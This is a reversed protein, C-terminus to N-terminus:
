AKSRSVVGLKTRGDIRIDLPTTLRIHRAFQNETEVPGNALWERDIFDGERQPDITLYGMHLSMVNHFFHTGYSPTIAEGDMDTEVMVRANAIQEWVVPIGLTRDASGWRGPGILVYPHPIGENLEGIAKAIEATRKRDFTDQRVVVIDRIEDFHGNGLAQRSMCLTNERREFLPKAGPGALSNVIPRIQLLAFEHRGGEEPSLDVAFELEIDNGMGIKGIELLTGTLEALPFAGGKLVGNFNVVLTGSHDLGDHLQGQQDVVAGLHALTGHSRAEILPLRPLSLQDNAMVIDASAVDLAYFERQTNRLAAEGSSFQPLLRPHGPSFWLAREGDVVARGLGLVVHCLGDDGEMPPLPYYNWSQALGSFCPYFYREHQRGAIQQIIVAMKEEGLRQGYANVYAKPGQFFTSAYVMKIARCLQLLRVRPNSHTNPLMYTRYLGALPLYHSDELLSSSRVALPYHVNTLLTELDDVLSQPLKAKLCREAVETDSELAMLEAHSDSLQVFEDFIDTGLVTTWPVRVDLDPFCTEVNSNMVLDNLFALGRGKGGLSGDGLRLFRRQLDFRSRSFNTVIGRQKQYRTESLVQILYERLETLDAFDDVGVQRLVAALEVEGRAMLWNSFHNREAHLRLSQEPIRPLIQELAQISHARGIEHGHDDRFVFDGFGCYTEFFSSLEQLLTSSSKHLFTAGLAHAKEENAPNSSQLLAPVDPNDTKIRQILKFGAADDIKGQCPYRVDSIVTLLSHSYETIISIAEDLSTALLIKPRARMRLLKDAENLGEDMLARTQKVVAAYITPLFASYDVPSDEVLVIVRVNGATVDHKVNLRDEIHKIIALFIKSDGSWIFVRDIGSGPRIEKLRGLSPGKYALLVVPLNPRRRKIEKGFDTADTDGLRSMTIVLDFDYLEVMRLAEEATSVRVIRPPSAMNLSVYDSVLREGLHGDEELIFSDYMSSVLLIADIHHRTLDYFSKFKRRHSIQRKINM